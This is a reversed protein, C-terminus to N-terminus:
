KVRRNKFVSDKFIKFQIVKLPIMNEITFKM